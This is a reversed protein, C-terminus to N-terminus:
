RSAATLLKVLSMKLSTYAVKETIHDVVGICFSEHHTSYVKVGEQAEALTLEGLISFPAEPFSEIWNVNRDSCVLVVRAGSNCLRPVLGRYIWSRLRSGTGDQDHGQKLVVMCKKHAGTLEKIFQDVINGINRRLLDDLQALASSEQINASQMNGSLNVDQGATSTNGMSQTLHVTTPLTRIEELLKLTGPFSDRSFEQILQEIISSESQYSDWHIHVCGMRIDSYSARVYDAIDEAEGADEVAINFPRKDQGGSYWRKFVDKTGKRDIWSVTSRENEAM